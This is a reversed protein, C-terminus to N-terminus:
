GERRRRRTPQWRSPLQRARAQGCRSSCIASARARRANTVAVPGILAAPHADYRPLKGDLSEPLSELALTVHEFSYFGVIGQEDLAVFVQAIHRRQDQTARTRFWDDLAPVGLRIGATTRRSRPARVPDAGARLWGRLPATSLAAVLPAAPPPPQSVAKLFAKATRASPDASTIKSSAVRAKTRWDGAALGSIATAREILKRVSPAVRLEM